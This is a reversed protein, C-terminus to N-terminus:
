KYVVKFVLESFYFNRRSTLDKASFAGLPAPAGGPPVGLGDGARRAGGTPAKPLRSCPAFGAGAPRSYKNTFPGQKPPGSHQHSTPKSSSLVLARRSRPVICIFRVQV